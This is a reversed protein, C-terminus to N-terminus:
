KVSKVAGSVSLATLDSASAVIAAIAPLVSLEQSGAVDMVTKLQAAVPPVVDVVECLEDVVASAPDCAASHVLPRNATSLKVAVM